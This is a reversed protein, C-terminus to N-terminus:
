SKGVQVRAFRRKGARLLYSGATLRLSPDTVRSGDLEVAGQAVLRRADANSAVGLAARLVDLLGVRDGDSLAIRVETVEDPLGGQRM